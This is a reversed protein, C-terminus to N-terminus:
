TQASEAGLHVVMNEIENLLEYIEDLVPPIKEYNGNLSYTLVEESLKAMKQTLEVLKDGAMVQSRVLSNNQIKLKFYNLKFLLAKISRFRKHLSNSRLVAYSREINKVIFELQEEFTHKQM